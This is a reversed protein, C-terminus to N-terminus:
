FFVRDEKGPREEANVEERRCHHYMLFYYLDFVSSSIQTDPLAFIPFLLHRAVFCAAYIENCYCYMSVVSAIKIKKLHNKETHIKSFVTCFFLIFPFNKVPNEPYDNIM